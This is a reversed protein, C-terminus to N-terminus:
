QDEQRFRGIIRIEPVLRISYEQFVRSEAIKMLECVDSAMANGLNIIFNAHQESIKANGKRLGALGALDILKGASNQSPNKFVSGANPMKLPQRKRRWNKYENMRKKIKEKKNKKLILEARLIIDKNNQFMSERYGFVLDKKSYNRLRGSASLATVQTLLDSIMSRHAGANMVIGGGITGPIGVAFELGSLGSTAAEESLKALSYGAGAKIKPESICIDDLCGSVKITIGNIGEDGVLLKTGNGIITLHVHNKKAINLTNKLDQEDEPIVLADAPGGINLSTHNKMPEDFLLTGRVSKRLSRKTQSSLM